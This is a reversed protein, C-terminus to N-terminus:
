TFIHFFPSLHLFFFLHICAAHNSTQITVKNESYHLYILSYVKPMLTVEVSNPTDTVIGYNYINLGALNFSFIHVM